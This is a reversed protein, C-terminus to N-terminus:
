CIRSLNYYEQRLWTERGRETEIKSSGRGKHEKRREKWGGERGGEREERAWKRRRERGEKKRGEM